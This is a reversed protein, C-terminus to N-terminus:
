AAHRSEERRDTIEPFARATCVGQVQSSVRKIVLDARDWLLARTEVRGGQDFSKTLSGSVFINASRQAYAFENDPAGATSGCRHPRSM